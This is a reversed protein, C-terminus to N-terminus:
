LRHDMLQVSASRHVERVNRQLLFVPDRDCPQVLRLRVGVVRVQHAVQVRHDIVHSEIVVNVHADDGRLEVSDPGRARVDVQERRRRRVVLGHEAQVALLNQVLHLAGWLEEDGRDVTVTHSAAELDRHRRVEADGGVPRPSDTQRLDCQAYERAGATRLPQRPENALAARDVQHRCAAHDSRLFRELPAQEVADERARLEPLLRHGKRFAQRIRLM